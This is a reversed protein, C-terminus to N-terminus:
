NLIDFMSKYYLPQQIFHVANHKLHNKYEADLEDHIFYKNKWVAEQYKNNGVYFSSWDINKIPFGSINNLGGYVDKIWNSLAYNNVDFTFYFKTWNPQDDSYNHTDDYDDEYYDDENYSEHM